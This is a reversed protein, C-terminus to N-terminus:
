VAREGWGQICPAAPQAEKEMKRANRQFASLGIIFAVGAM